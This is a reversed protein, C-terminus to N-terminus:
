WGIVEEQTPLSTLDSEAPVDAIESLRQGSDQFIIGDTSFRINQGAYQSFFQPDYIKFCIGGICGFYKRIRYDGIYVDFGLSSIKPINDLQLKVIYTVNSVQSDETVKMYNISRLDAETPQTPLIEVASVTPYYNNAPVNSSFM